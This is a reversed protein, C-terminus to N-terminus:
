KLLTNLTGKVLVICSETAIHPNSIAPKMGTRPLNEGPVGTEKYM